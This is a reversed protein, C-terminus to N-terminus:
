QFAAGAVLHLEGVRHGLHDAVHREMPQAVLAITEVAAVLDPEQLRLERERQFAGVEPRGHAAEELM